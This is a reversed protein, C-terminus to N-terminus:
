DALVKVRAKVTIAQRPRLQPISWRIFRYEEYPIVIEVLRGYNNVVRNTLPAPAYSEGTLSAEIARPNATNELLATAAPIPLVAKLDAILNGSNNRYTARYELIDGPKAATAPLFAPRGASDTTVLFSELTVAVEAFASIVVSGLLLVLLLKRFTLM